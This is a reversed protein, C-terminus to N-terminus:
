AEGLLRAVKCIQMSCTWICGFDNVGEKSQNDKSVIQPEWIPPNAFLAM